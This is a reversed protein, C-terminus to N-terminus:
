PIVRITAKMGVVDHLACFYEYTGAKTFTLKYKTLAVPLPLGALQFYAYQAATTMLGSNLNEVGSYSSGGRAMLQALPDLPEVGFTVTHPETPDHTKWFTVAQGVHVTLVQPFFRLTTVRKNGAGVWVSPGSDDDRDENAEAAIDSRTDLDAAIQRQAIAGYQADTKPLEERAPLVDVTETMGIHLGCIIKYRGAGLTSAFTLTYSSGPPGGVFGSNVPAGPSNITGATPTANIPAFLAFLPAAPRNFTITHAGMLSFVVRDGAHIALAAPYFRNGGGLPPGGAGFALSGAQVHWTAPTSALAPSAFFATLTMALSLGVGLIRRM